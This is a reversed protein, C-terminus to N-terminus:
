ERLRGSRTIRQLIDRLGRAVEPHAKVVNNREGIDNELDYLAEGKRLKIYKWRGDFVARRAGPAEEVIFPAGTTDTGLFAALTDRSDVAQTDDLSVGILAAFSALLDAQSVLADSKGPKVHGPWSLIFPVRTGGEYIQYKGGRYPGSADHGRDNEGRSTKVTTGDKYGDDYVPGNDSSFIVITNGRIGLTDLLKVIRGTAWDLEVMSDGRYTLKSKGRFRANPVRPVHICQSALFLFFPKDKHAKVFKEAMSVLKGTMTADDWLAKKGGWMYGIRGIGNIVSNNHGMSSKYFTMADPNKKGDPYSTSKPFKKRGISIPDSPDANYVRRNEVYVCPVRDNTYPIYFAYDFGVELAGPKLEGNWDNKRGREGVGLHWKGVVGTAYGARKFLKPLTLIDTPICLPANPALIQVKKRFALLGTLLTYRSPTCTAASCHANTFLLGQSALRDINPTPILKAGYAGVDGYGVDDGYIIVVNPKRDAQLGGAGLAIAAVAGASLLSRAGVEVARGRWRYFVIFEGGTFPVGAVVHPCEM